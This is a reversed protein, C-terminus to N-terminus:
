CCILTLVLCFHLM